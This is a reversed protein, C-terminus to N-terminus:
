DGPLGQGDGEIPILPPVDAPKAATQAISKRAWSSLFVGSVALMKLANRRDM